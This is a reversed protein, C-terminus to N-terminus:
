IVINFICSGIKLFIQSFIVNNNSKKSIRPCIQFYNYIIKFQMHRSFVYGCYAYYIDCKLIYRLYISEAVGYKVSQFWLMHKTECIVTVKIMLGVGSFM